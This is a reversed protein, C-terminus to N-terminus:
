RNIDRQGFVRHAVALCLVCYAISAATSYILPHYFPPETLLGHWTDFGYTMLLRRPADPGDVYGSLQMALAAVVPLGVGAVSSRTIISLLVALATFGFAPPLVSAWALAIRSVARAPALSIGSLDVLPQSGIGVIGAAISSAALAALALASFALATVVKGVFIDSRSRSRTLLTGWTGYRDEAAFLDGAIVATLVPIVWLTAFGLVVLPTAFGSEKVGRGFLTDEPVSAQLRMAAVFAFPGIACVALLVRLALQGRLKACEVGIVTAVARQTV